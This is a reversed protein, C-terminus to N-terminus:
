IKGDRRLQKIKEWLKESVEEEKFERLQKGTYSEGEFLMSYGCSVIDKGVATAVKGVDHIETFLKRFFSM